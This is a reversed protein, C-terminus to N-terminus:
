KKGAQSLGENIVRYIREVDLMEPRDLALYKVGPFRRNEPRIMDKPIDERLSDPAAEGAEARVRQLAWQGERSLYWNVFIKAANPHPARNILGLTFERPTIGAGEKMLGFSDVPLGQRKARDADCAFCIPYKGIALWDTAQREDRFLILDMEAFLRRVFKPGLEPSHYFFYMSASARGPNGRIDQAIIKGRWKPNLFDWFSSFEKPNVLNTNYSIGGRNATGVHIFVYEGDPDAYRHKGGWWKSEDLIEPLIFASKIPDLAKARHLTPYTNPLGDIIVDALFKGARRESLIRYALQPGRAAVGSVKIEPYAKQFVGTDLILTSGWIYVTVQGEKKAQAVTKEWEAHWPAPNVPAAQAVVEWAPAQLIVLAIALLPNKM